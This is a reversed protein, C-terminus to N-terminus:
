NATTVFTCIGGPLEEALEHESADPSTAEEPKQEGKEAAPSDQASETAGSEVPVPAEKKEEAEELKKPKETQPKGKKGLELNTNPFEVLFGERTLWRIDALVNRAEESLEPRANEDKPDPRKFDPCLKELVDATQVKPEESVIAIIKQIRDTLAISGSIAQPRVISVHLAKKGRKFFKLGEKELCSCVAQFMEFPFGRRLKKGEQKVLTLLDPSLKKGPVNGHIVVERAEVVESVAYNQRFHRELEERNKLVPEDSSPSDKEETIEESGAPEVTTENDTADEEEAPEGSVGPEDTETEPAPSEEVEVAEPAPDAEATTETEPEEVVPETEASAAKQEFDAAEEVECSEVTKGGEATVASEPDAPASEDSVPVENKGPAEREGKEPESGLPEPRVRFHHTKSVKDHWKGVIEEGTEMEIRSKYRELSMNSFKERHIRAVTRQYEHHNPPGLVEGSFGCVAIKTFNGKPAELEVEETIYYKKLQKKSNLFNSVAEERTLWVSGDEVCQYLLPGSETSKLRIQYRERANAVMKALDAVPYARVTEQIHSTLSKVAEPTPEFSLKLGKIEFNEPQQHRDDRGRGGRNRDFGRRDDGRRDNGRRDNRYGGSRRDGHDRREGQNSRDGQNRDRRDRREFKGSDGRRGKRPSDERFEDYSKAKKETTSQSSEQAWDPMLDFASFELPANDEKSM